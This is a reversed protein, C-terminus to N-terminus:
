SREPRLQITALERMDEDTTKTHWAGPTKEISDSM